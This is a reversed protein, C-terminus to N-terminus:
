FILPIPLDQQIEFTNYPVRFYRPRFVYVILSFFRTPLSSGSSVNSPTRPIWGLKLSFSVSTFPNHITYNLILSVSPTRTM